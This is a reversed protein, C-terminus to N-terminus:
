EYIVQRGMRRIKPARKQPPPTALTPPPATKEVAAPASINGFRDVVSVSIVDPMSRSFVCGRQNAPFIQTKWVKNTGFYQLVWLKLIANTPAQWRVTLNTRAFIAASIGPRGPPAAELWPMPPVLADQTNQARVLNNLRRDDVLSKLHYFIEGSVGPQARLIQIQRAIEDASFNEGVGATNLGAFLDRGEVNQQAWWGLLVPFSHPPDDVPWYLQPAFYDVWGSALWLRSDAYIGAYADLGKIQKPYGPRWIGFPSIGFKVWPKAAKISQYISHVFQNINQRRWEDRPLGSHAGYKQWTAYDPFDGAEKSFYPYFYDDFQVGDVDYRRVVDMVLRQVYERAAPDGPDLWLQDGYRRVFEPHTRSVHNPAPASKATATRARFPNFWAHLELGRKHAEAIAFALPDYFPEPAWGQVGTLSESWPEIGSAYLADCAPRVQFIVANLKLEVARDLLWILEAKQEAVTLGPRSPWDPNSAVETIWAGRFERPPEPAAVEAPRYVFDAAFLM